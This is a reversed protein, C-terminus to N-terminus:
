IFGFLVLGLGSPLFHVEFLLVSHPEAVAEGLNPKGM